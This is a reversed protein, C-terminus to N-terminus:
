AGPLDAEPLVSQLSEELYGESFGAVSELRKEDLITIRNRDRILLNEERLETFTRSVHVSSLGLADAFIQQSLPLEFSLGLDPDIRKLRCYLEFVMHATKEFANRRGLNVLRETLMMQQRGSISFFISTLRTSREFIDVINRHPFRCVVGDTLMVVGSLRRTFAFERLGIVDGPLFVDLVQRSGDDINRYSYAWGASITCLEGALDGEEWLVEHASLSVPGKELSMLLEKEDAGLQSYHCFHRVICSDKESM